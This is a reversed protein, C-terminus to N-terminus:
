QARLLEIALDARDTVIGDVGLDLLRRMDDVENVTWVHVEVGAAHCASVVRRTVVRVGRVTDPLQVADVDRLAQAVASRIGVRASLLARVAGPQSASTAVGPLAAIAAQRCANDFSAILVRHHAAADEVAKVTPEVAAACKIDINFRADPFADLAEALSCFSQGQGLSVKRLEAMTLQDVRVSRDAVRLLDEDHAVVSVGDHSAHVDTELYDAGANLAALFAMLTNEPAETALGRHAFIRPKAATFFGVEGRKSLPQRRM